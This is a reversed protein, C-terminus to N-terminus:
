AMWAIDGADWAPFPASAVAPAGYEAALRMRGKCLPCEITRLRPFEFLGPEYAREPQIKRVEACQSCYILVYNIAPSM